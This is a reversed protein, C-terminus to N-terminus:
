AAALSRAIKRQTALDGAVRARLFRVVDSDGESWRLMREELSLVSRRQGSSPNEVVKVVISRILGELSSEAGEGPGLLKRLAEDENAKALADLAAIGTGHDIRPGYMQEFLLEGDMKDREARTLERAPVFAEKEVEIGASVGALYDDESAAVLHSIGPDLKDWEQKALRLLEDKEQQSKVVRRFPDMKQNKREDIADV